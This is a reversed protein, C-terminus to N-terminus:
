KCKNSSRRTVHHVLIQESFLRKGHGREIPLPAKRKVFLFVSITFCSSMRFSYICLLLFFGGSVISFREDYTAQFLPLHPLHSGQICM